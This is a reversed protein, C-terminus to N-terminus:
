ADVYKGEVSGTGARSSNRDSSCAAGALVVVIPGKSLFGLGLAGYMVFNWCRPGAAGTGPADGAEAEERSGHGHLRRWAALTTFFALPGDNGAQRLEVIFFVMSTLALGSALGVSRGGLRRGLGYVLAVMGLAGLASPLRVMWEDRRGTLRMLAAITWRPLPPKELRPRGQIQAVLWHHNDITDIAEASARQERKGWLDIAGLFGLFVVGALVALAAEPGFRRAWGRAAITPM